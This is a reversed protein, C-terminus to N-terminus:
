RVVEGFISLSLFGLIFFRIFKGLFTPIFYSLYPFGLYGAIIGVVDYPFPILSWFFLAFIGYKQISGEIEKIKRSKPFIVDGSKGVVWSVSDNVGIGFSSVCALLFVSMHRSLVPILFMGPGGFLNFLFVGFYGFRLFPRPDIIIFLTLIVFSLGVIFTIHKFVKSHLFSKNNYTLKKMEALFISLQNM